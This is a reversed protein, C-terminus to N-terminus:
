TILPLVAPASASIFQLPHGAQIEFLMAIPTVSHQSPECLICLSTLMSWAFHLNKLIQGLSIFGALPQHSTVGQILGQVAVATDCHLTTYLKHFLM